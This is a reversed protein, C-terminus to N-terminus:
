SYKLIHLIFFTHGYFRYMTKRGNFIKSRHINTHTHTHTHRHTHDLNSKSISLISIEGAFAKDKSMYNGEGTFGM